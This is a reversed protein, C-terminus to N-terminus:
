NVLEKLKKMALLRVTKSSPKAKCVCSEKTFPNVGKRASTAPKKKLKMTLCGGIKFSGNKKLESTAVEMLGDLVAKSQKAKLGNKEALSASIAAASMAGGAKQVKTAPAM